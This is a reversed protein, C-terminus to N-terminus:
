EKQPEDAEPLEYYSIRRTTYTNEPTVIEKVWNNAETGDFQYIYEKTTTFGRRKSKVNDLVGNETYGYTLDEQLIWKETSSDYLASNHSLLKQDDDFVEVTKTYLQGDLYKQTLVTKQLSDIKSVSLTTQITESVVGNRKQTVITENETERYTFTNEDTGNTDTHAIRTLKGEKGYFYINQELLEKEYSVIKEIVKRNATTDISYFNALSTANDFTDDLYNEVRREVLENNVYKYYTTEYDSDNFRTVSKTLRGMKDFYYEEKGYDTIVLCSEVNGRLDFDEIKFIKIEQGYLYPSIGAFFFLILFKKLM